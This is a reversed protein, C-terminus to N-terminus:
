AARLCPAVGACDPGGLARGGGAALGALLVRHRRGGLGRISAVAQDVMDDCLRGKRLAPHALIVRPGCDKIVLATLTEDSADKTPFCYDM